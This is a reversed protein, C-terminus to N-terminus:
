GGQDVEGTSRYLFRPITQSKCSSNAAVVLVAAFEKHDALPRPGTMSRNAPIILNEDTGVM